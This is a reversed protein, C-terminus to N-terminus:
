LTNILLKDIKAITTKINIDKQKIKVRIKYKNHYSNNSLIIELAKIISSDNNECVIGYESEGLLEKMGPCDTALIAKGLVISELVVTSLGELLSPCAMWDATAIYPYPNDIHGLFKVYDELQNEKVFQEHKDRNGGGIIWSQFKFGKDKLRLLVKLWREYGKAETMRGVSVITPYVTKKIPIPQSAKEQILSSNIPNYIVGVNRISPFLEKFSDVVGQSVGVIYSYQQYYIEQIAIEQKSKGQQSLKTSTHLWAIKKGKKLKANAIWYTPLGEYFAIVTDNKDGILVKYLFNPIRNLLYNFLLYLWGIQNNIVYKYHIHKKFPNDFTKNYGKYVSHKYVSCVTIDYKDADLNNVIDILVREAGGVIFSEILFLIRKKKM